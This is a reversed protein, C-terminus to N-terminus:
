LSVLRRPAIRGDDLIEGVGLFCDDSQSLRVWGKAPAEPAMVAQGQRLYYATNASLIVEPWDSVASWMPLLLADLTEHM